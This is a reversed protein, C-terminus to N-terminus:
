VPPFNSIENESEIEIESSKIKQRDLNFPTSKRRHQFTM